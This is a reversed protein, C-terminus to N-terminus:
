VTFRQLISEGYLKILVKIYYARVNWAAVCCVEKINTDCKATEDAM